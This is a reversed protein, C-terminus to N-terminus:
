FLQSVWVVGDVEYAVEGGGPGVSPNLEIVEPSNTLNSIEKGDVSALYLDSAILNHGDDVSLNYVIGSGDPLWSPSYGEGLSVADGTGDTRKIFLGTMLGNYVIHQGDPSVKGGYYRDNGDSIMVAPAGAGPRYYLADDKTFAGAAGKAPDPSVGEVPTGDPKFVQTEGTELKVVIDGEDNYHANFGVGEMDTIMRVKGGRLSKVFVGSHGARTFMVELGDPSWRPNMFDGEDTSTVPRSNGVRRSGNITPQRRSLLEVRDQRSTGAEPLFYIDPRPENKRGAAAVDGGSRRAADGAAAESPDAAGDGAGVREPQRTALYGILSGAVVVGVVTFLGRSMKM